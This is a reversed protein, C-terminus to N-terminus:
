QLELNLFGYKYSDDIAGYIFQALIAISAASENENRVGVQARIWSSANDADSMLKIYPSEYRKGAQSFYLSDRYNWRNRIDSPKQWGKAGHCINIFKAIDPWSPNTDPIIKLVSQNFQPWMTQHPKEGNVTYGITSFDPSITGKFNSKAILSNVHAGGVKSFIKISEERNLSLQHTGCLRLTEIAGFFSCYYASVLSWAVSQNQALALADEWQRKVRLYGYYYDRLLARCIDRPPATVTFAQDSVTSISFLPDELLNSKLGGEQEIENLSLIGAESAINYLKGRLAKGLSRASRM